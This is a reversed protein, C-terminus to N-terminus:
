GVVDTPRNVVTRQHTPQDRYGPRDPRALAGNGFEYGPASRV